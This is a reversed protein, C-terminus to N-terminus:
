QATVGALGGIFGVIFGLGSSVASVILIVKLMKMGRPNGQIIYIISVVLAIGGCFICFLYDLMSLEVTDDGGSAVTSGSKTPANKVPKANAKAAQQAYIEQRRALAAGDSSSNVRKKTQTNFGCTICLVDGEKMDAGCNPCTVASRSPPALGIEDLLSNVSHAAAPAAEKAPAKKPASAPAASPKATAAPKAAAAGAAPVKVPQSCKPCKLTKGAWEDKANLKAGCQCVVSIPM